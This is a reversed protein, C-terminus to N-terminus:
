TALDVKKTDLLNKKKLQSVIKKIFKMEDDTRFKVPITTRITIDFKSM